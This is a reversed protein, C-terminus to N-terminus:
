IQQSRSSCPMHEEMTPAKAPEGAELDRLRICLLLKGCTWKGSGLRWHSGQIRLFSNTPPPLSAFSVWATTITIASNTVAGGSASIIIM